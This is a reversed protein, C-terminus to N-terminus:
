LMGDLLEDLAAALKPQERDLAAQPDEVTGGGSISSGFYAINAIAGGRDKDPGIEAELGESTDEIDYSITRALGKFRRHTRAEAQMDDKINQAGRKLVPVAHRVLEIPAENLDLAFARLESTDFASTM